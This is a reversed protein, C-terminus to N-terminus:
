HQCCVSLVYSRYAGSEDICPCLFSSVVYQPHQIDEQPNDQLTEWVSKLSDLQVERDRVCREIDQRYLHFEVM